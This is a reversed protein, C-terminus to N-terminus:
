IDLFVPSISFSKKLRKMRYFKLQPNCEKIQSVLKTFHIGKVDSEMGIYLRKISSKLTIKNDDLEKREFYLMEM